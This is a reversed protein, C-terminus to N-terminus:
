RIDEASVENMWPFSFVGGDLVADEEAESDIFPAISCFEGASTTTEGLSVLMEAVLFSSFTKNELPTLGFEAMPYSERINM